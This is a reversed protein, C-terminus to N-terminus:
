EILNVILYAAGFVLFVIWLFGIWWPAPNSEYTQYRDDLFQEPRSASAASEAPSAIIPGVAPLIVPAHAHGGPEGHRGGADDRRGKGDAV